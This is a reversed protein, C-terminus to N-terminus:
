HCSDARSYEIDREEISLVVVVVSIRQKKDVTSIYSQCRLVLIYTNCETNTFSLVICQNHVWVGGGVVGM